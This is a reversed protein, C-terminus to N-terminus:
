STGSISGLESAGDGVEAQLRALAAALRDRVAVAEALGDGIQAQLSGNLGQRVEARYDKASRRGARRGSAKVALSLVSAAVLSGGILILNWPVQGRDVGDVWLWVLGAVLAAFLALQVVGVLSWWRRPRPPGLDGVVNRTAEVTSRVERELVEPAFRERVQRGLGGGLSTSLDTITRSLDGLVRELGPQAWWEGGALEDSEAGLARGLRSRRLLAGLRGIPGAARSTALREGVQEA